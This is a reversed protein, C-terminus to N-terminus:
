CGGDDDGILIPDHTCLQSTLKKTTAGELSGDNGGRTTGLAQRCNKLVGPWNLCPM